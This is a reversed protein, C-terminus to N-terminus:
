VVRPRKSAPIVTAELPVPHGMVLESKEGSGHSSFQRAVSNSQDLQRDRLEDECPVFHSALDFRDEHLTSIVPPSLPPHV